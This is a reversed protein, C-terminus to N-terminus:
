QSRTSAKALMAIYRDMKHDQIGPWGEKSAQGFLKRASIWALYRLPRGRKIVPPDGRLHWCLVDHAYGRLISPSQPIVDWGNVIRFHPARSRTRHWLSTFKPSGFTYCAAIREYRITALAIQALAGGLSHGVIVLPLKNEIELDSLSAQVHAGIQEYAMAFGSHVLLSHGEGRVVKKRVQLNTMWDTSDTTGRFALVAYKDGVALYAQVGRDRWNALSREQDSPAWMFTKRVSLGATEVIKQLEIGNDVEFTSYAANALHAMQTAFPLNLQDVSGSVDLVAIPHPDAAVADTM